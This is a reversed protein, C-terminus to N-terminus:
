LRSSCGLRRGFQDLWRRLEPALVFLLTIAIAFTAINIIIGFTPLPLLLNVLLLIGAVVALLLTM